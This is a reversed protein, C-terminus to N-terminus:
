NEDMQRKFDHGISSILHLAEFKLAEPFAKLVPATEFSLVGEYDVARLGRVFGEWDTSSKNERTKTFTYPIQHLDGVGDNDHIHLVKLRSGLTTIFKEFDMGILNAHGTDFCFGLVEAGYEANIRDIREVNKRVDCGPGEVIHGGVSEYLNEMCVTIGYEKAMPLITDLFERTKQWEAEETGWFRSLKFGHIVINPCELFRCIEMSKPAVENWMYDNLKDKGNPIFVPYPMHMQNICIGNKKAAIKHATFFLELEEVSQDFFNNMNARYIDTNKLYGNLSFDCCTFGAQRLMEFGEYPNEDSIVNQTQVGVELM